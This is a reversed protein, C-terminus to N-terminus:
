MIHLIKKLEVILHWDSSQLENRFYEKCIDISQRSIRSVLVDEHTFHKGYTKSFEGPKAEIKVCVEDGKKACDIKNNNMEICSIVGIELIDRSPVCIPTGERLTGQEVHVGLVIPDRPNFVFDPLIRLKCPFVALRKIDENQKLLLNDRYKIYMDSLHYIIDAHFIQVGLSDALEQADREIKVDFALIAAYMSDHELMISAKMVDKKVVPGIKVHFYPIGSASLYDLLAELSGLTSAQVYVGRESTKISHMVDRLLRNMEDKLSDIMSHNSAVFIPLGAISKELDKGTIKVGQAGEIAKYEIYPNKVRLEKLPQPMLLSRVQTIIPGDLGAIIITDGEQLRGNVLIVDITTGLGPIAKVELVTAELEGSYILKKNMLTQTLVSVLSLLNGMGDGTIASTPVMSVYSRPDKNEYFLVANLCENAFQLIIEQCRKKFQLQTSLSQSKITNEIDEDKASKWGYIRDIKNLAVIFPIKGKKLLNISEITQPELGHMIDVVLIAIDCISSGRSRLNSFSEHGPTDIVLLGPIELTVSSFNKVMKCKDKLAEQPIMTAGIQQTIGGAESDQVHTKRIYDLLKTKGTDVHGLVCVVPSRYKLSDAKHNPELTKTQNQHLVETKNQKLKESCKVITLKKNMTMSCIVGEDLGDSEESYSFNGKDSEPILASEDTSDFNSPLDSLSDKGSSEQSSFSESKLRESVVIASDSSRASQCSDYRKRHFNKNNGLRPGHSSAPRKNSIEPVDIGQQRLAALTAEMRARSQKQSKSLLRGEAKMKERRQKEKLKKKEKKEQELRLKELRIKEAEELMKQRMEAEKKMREEEEKAKKLAEHIMALQKKSPRKGRKRSEDDHKSLSVKDNPVTEICTTEQICENETIKQKAKVRKEKRKLSKKQQNNPILIPGNETVDRSNHGDALTSIKFDTHSNLEALESTESFNNRTENNLGKPISECKLLQPEKSNCITPHIIVTDKKPQVVSEEDVDLEKLLKEVEDDISKKKYEKKKSKKKVCCSNEVFVSKNSSKVELSENTFSVTDCLESEVGSPLKEVNLLDNLDVVNNQLELINKSYFDSDNSSVHPEEVSCKLKLDDSSLASLNESVSGNTKHTWFNTCCNGSDENTFKEGLDSLSRFLAKADKNECCRKYGKKKQVICFDDSTLFDEPIEENHNETEIACKQIHDVGNRLKRNKGM